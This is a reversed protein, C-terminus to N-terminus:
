VNEENKDSFCSKSLVDGIFIKPVGGLRGQLYSKRIDKDNRVDKYESFSFLSSAGDSDRETVWMEDRRLLDQDMLLVDHTTFLLQNRSESSCNSLYMELLSRTLLTHLSHDIEDIIVVVDWASSCLMVFAPLLDIAKLTGDSEQGMEFKVKVGDAKSHYTVLKKAVLQNNRRTIVVRESGMVKASEGEKLDENLKKKTLDPISINERPIETSGLRLIGTDLRSLVDNMKSYLPSDEDLFLEYNGFKADPAILILSHKFWNYVPKFDEVEQLASNTM